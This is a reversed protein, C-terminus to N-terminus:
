RANPPYETYRAAPCPHQSTIAMVLAACPCGRARGRSNGHALPHLSLHRLASQTSTCATDTIHLTSASGHHHSTDVGIFWMLWPQYKSWVTFIMLEKWAFGEHEALHHKHLSPEQKAM